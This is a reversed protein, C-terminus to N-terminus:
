PCLIQRTTRLWWSEAAVVAVLDVEPAPHEAEVAAVEETQWRAPGTETAQVAQTPGALQLAVAAPEEQVV